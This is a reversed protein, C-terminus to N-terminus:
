PDFEGRFKSIDEEAEQAGRGAGGPEAHPMREMLRRAHATSCGLLAAVEVPTLLAPTM